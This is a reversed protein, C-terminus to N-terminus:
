DFPIGTKTSIDRLEQILAPVVGFADLGQSDRWWESHQDDRGANISGLSPMRQISNIAKSCHSLFRMERPAVAQM